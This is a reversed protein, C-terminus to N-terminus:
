QSAVKEWQSIGSSKLEPNGKKSIFLKQINSFNELRVLINKVGSWYQATSVMASEVLETGM